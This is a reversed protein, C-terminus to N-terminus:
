VGLAAALPAATARARTMPSCYLAEVGSGVADVVRHAQREGLATLPPDAVGSAAADVREPLAHRVLVLQM